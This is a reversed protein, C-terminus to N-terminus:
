FWLTIVAPCRSASELLVRLGLVPQGQHLRLLLLLQVPRGSPVLASEFQAGARGGKVRFNM